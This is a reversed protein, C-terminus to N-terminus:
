YLSSAGETAPGAIARFSAFLERGMGFENAELYADAPSRASFEAEDVLVSLEGTVADVRVM